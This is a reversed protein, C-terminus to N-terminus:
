KKTFYGPEGPKDIRAYEKGVHNSDYATGNGGILLVDGAFMGDSNNSLNETTFKDSVYIKKLSDCSFFMSGMEVVNSTDFSSLDLEEINNMDVFMYGMSQINITNWTNLGKLRKAPLHIFLETVSKRDNLNWNSVDVFDLENSCLSITGNSSACGLRTERNLTWGKASLEILPVNNLIGGVSVGDKFTWNDLILKKLSLCNSFMVDMYQVNGTDFNDLNLATIKSCNNFMNSMNTVKSTDFNDLNITSINSCDNFLYSMNIINKTSWTEIGKIEKLSKLGSFLAYLSTTNELNWNSADILEIGSSSGSWNWGFCPSSNGIIWGKMSVRKLNPTNMFVGGASIKSINWNDMNIETLSTDNGFIANINTTNSTDFYHLDLEEISSMNEFMVNMSQVNKTNFSGLDLKKVNSAGYFMAEMNIVNSTDFSSLDINSTNSNIFMTAMSVIPKDNISTCLKTTVDDTSEKDTLRVGWGDNEINNWNNGNAEQMYRYTYQGNKYEAGQVLEVEYTCPNQKVKGITINSDIDINCKCIAYVSFPIIIITGIILVFSKKYKKNKLVIYTSGSIVLAFIILFLYSNGTNPNTLIDVIDQKNSLSILINNKHNYKGSFFKEKEVEKKYQVKVVIDKESNAKVINSNDKYSISYDFYDSNINLSDKDFYFEENFTNKVKLKYEIYDGVEYMKLNLNIKNNEVTTPSLEEVYESKDKLDISEIKISGLNCEKANVVFPIFMIFLLILLIIRLKKM